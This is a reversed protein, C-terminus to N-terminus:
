LPPGASSDDSSVYRLPGATVYNVPITQNAENFAGVDANLKQIIPKRYDRLARVMSQGNHGSTDIQVARRFRWGQGHDWIILAYREAPYAQPAWRVFDVLVEGDGMNVEGIDAVANAVTPRMHQSVLFRLAQTWNGHASTWHPSRDFQVVINVEDSQEHTAMELFDRIAFPELDNDGNMFIMITWKVQAATADGSCAMFLGLAVAVIRLIMM